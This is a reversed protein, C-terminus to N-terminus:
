DGGGGGGGGDGGGGDGGWGGGSDAGWGGGDSGWGSNGGGGAATDVSAEIASFAADLGGFASIDLGAFDLAGADPGALATGGQGETPPGPGWNPDAPGDDDPYASGTLAPDGQRRRVEEFEPFLMPMLLLSGGAMGMYLLARNPDSRVWGPVETQGLEVRRELDARAAQGSATLTYHRVPFIGLIRREERAYYGREVLAPLVEETVFKTLPRYHREAAQAFDEVKVGITGDAFTQLRTGTFLRWVAALSRESPARPTAGEALVSRRRTRDFLVPEEVDVLALAGRGVLEMIALKFPQTDPREVRHLLVYSDPAPLDWRTPPWDTESSASQM